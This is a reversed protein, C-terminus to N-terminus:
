FMSLGRDEVLEQRPLGGLHEAHPVPHRPQTFGAGGCLEDLARGRFGM